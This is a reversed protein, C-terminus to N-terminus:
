EFETATGGIRVATETAEDATMWAADTDVASWESGTWWVRTEGNMKEIVNNEM